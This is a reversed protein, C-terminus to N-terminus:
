RTHRLAGCSTQNELPTCRGRHMCSVGSFVRNWAGKSQINSDQFRRCGFWAQLLASELLPLDHNKAPPAGCLLTHAAARGWAAKPSPWGPKLRKDWPERQPDTALGRTATSPRLSPSLDSTQHRQARLYAELSVIESQPESVMFIGNSIRAQQPGLLTGVHGIVLGSAQPDYSTARQCLIQGSPGRSAV